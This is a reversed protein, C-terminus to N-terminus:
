GGDGAAACLRGDRVTKIKDASSQNRLKQPYSSFHHGGEIGPFILEVSAFM